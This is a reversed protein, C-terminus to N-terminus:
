QKLADTKAHCETEFIRGPGAGFGGAKCIVHGACDFFVPKGPKECGYLGCLSLFFYGPSNDKTNRHKGDHNVVANEGTGYPNHFRNHPGNNVFLNDVFVAPLKFFVGIEDHGDHFYFGIKKLPALDM